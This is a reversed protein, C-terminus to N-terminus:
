RIYASAISGVMGLAIPSSVFVVMPEKLGCVAYLRKIARAARAEDVPETSIFNARWKQELADLAAMESETPAGLLLDPRRLRHTSDPMAKDKPQGNL